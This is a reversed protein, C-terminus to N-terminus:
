RLLERYCHTISLEWLLRGEDAEALTLLSALRVYIM